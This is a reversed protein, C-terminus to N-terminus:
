DGYYCRVLIYMIVLRTVVVKKNQIDGCDHPLQLFIEDEKLVGLEDIIGMVYCSKAVRICLKKDLTDLRWKQFKRLETLVFPENM